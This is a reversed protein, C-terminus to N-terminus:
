DDWWELIKHQLEVSSYLDRMAKLEGRWDPERYRKNKAQPNSLLFLVFDEVEQQLEPSLKQISEVLNKM